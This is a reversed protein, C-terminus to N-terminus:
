RYGQARLSDEFSLTPEELGDEPLNNLFTSFNKLYRGDQEGIYKKIANELQEPTRTKLLTAIRAKDKSCKGTSCIGREGRDTTGPYLKYIRNVVEADPAHSEKKPPETADMVAKLVDDAPIRKLAGAIEALLTIIIKDKREM